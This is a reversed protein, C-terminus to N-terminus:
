YPFVGMSRSEIWTSRIEWGEFDEKQSVIRSVTLTSNGERYPDVFSAPISHDGDDGTWCRVIGQGTDDEAWAQLTIEVGTGIEGGSWAVRLAGEGYPPAPHEADAAPLDIVLPDPRAVEVAFAPAEDDADEGAASQMQALEVLDMDVACDLSIPNPREPLATVNREISGLQFVVVGAGAPRLSEASDFGPYVACEESVRSRDVDGDSAAVVFEVGIECRPAGAEGVEDGSAAWVRGYGRGDLWSLFMPDDAHEQAVFDETEGGCGACLALAVWRM